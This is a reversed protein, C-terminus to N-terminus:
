QLRPSAATGLLRALEARLWDNEEHLEAVDRQLREILSFRECASRVTVLLEEARFPKELLAFVRGRNIAAMCVEPDAYGTLLIRVTPSGARVLKELLQVGRGGPLREDTIVVAYQGSELRTSAEELSGALEVLAGPFGRLCTALATLVGPEDDVCLIRHPM